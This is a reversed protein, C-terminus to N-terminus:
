DTQNAICAEICEVREDLCHQAVPLPYWRTPCLESICDYFIEDCQDRCFQLSSGSGYALSVVSLFVVTTWSLAQSMQFIHQM